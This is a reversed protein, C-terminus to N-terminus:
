TKLLCERGRVRRIGGDRPALRDTRQVPYRDRDLDIYVLSAVGGRVPHDGKPVLDRSFVTWRNRIPAGGPRHEDSSGIRRGERMAPERVVVQVAPREVGRL